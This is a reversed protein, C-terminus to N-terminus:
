RPKTRLRALECVIFGVGAGIAAYYLGLKWNYTAGLAGGAGGGVLIALVRYLVELAVGNKTM